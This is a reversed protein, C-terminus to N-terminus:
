RCGGFVSSKLDPCLEYLRAKPVQFYLRGLPIGPGCSEVFNEPCPLVEGLLRGSVLHLVVLGLASEQPFVPLMRPTADEALLQALL